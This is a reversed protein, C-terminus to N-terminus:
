FLGLQFLVKDYKNGNKFASLFIRSHRIADKTLTLEKETLIANYLAEERKRKDKGTHFYKIFSRIAPREKGDAKLAYAMNYIAYDYFPSATFKESIEKYLIYSAGYNGLGYFAEARLFLPEASESQTKGIHVELLDKAAGFRKAKILIEAKKLFARQRNEESLSDSALLKDLISLAEDYRELEAYACAVIYYANLFAKGNTILGENKEYESVVDKYASDYFSSLLLNALSDQLIGGAPRKKVIGRFLEGATTYNGAYFYAEAQKYVAVNVVEESCACEQAKVYYPVAKEYDSEASLMDGIELLALSTLESDKSPNAGVAEKFVQVAKDKEGKAGHVKGTYFYLTQLEAANLNDKKISSFHDLAEDYKNALFLIQGTRLASAVYDKGAPFHESYKRYWDIAESYLKSYFLSEALGFYAEAVYESEPFSEIFRRYEEAAMRYFGKDLLGDAFDLQETPTISEAYVSLSGRLFMPIILVWGYFMAKAYNRRM